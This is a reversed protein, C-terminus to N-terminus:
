GFRIKAIKKFQQSIQELGIYSVQKNTRNRPEHMQGATRLLALRSNHEQRRSPAAPSGDGSREKQM